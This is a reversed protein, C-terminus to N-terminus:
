AHSSPLPTSRVFASFNANFFATVRGFFTPERSEALARGYPNPTEYKQYSLLLLLLMYSDRALPGSETTTANQPVANCM